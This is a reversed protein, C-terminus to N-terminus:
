LFFRTQLKILFSVGICTNEQSYQSIKLFVYKSSCRRFAAELIENKQKKPRSMITVTSVFHESFLKFGSAKELQNM